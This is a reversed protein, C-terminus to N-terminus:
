RAQAELQQTLWDRLQGGEYNAGVVGRKPEDKRWIRFSNDKFQMCFTAAASEFQFTGDDTQQAM